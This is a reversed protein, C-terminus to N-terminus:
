ASERTPVPTKPGVNALLERPVVVASEGPTVNALQHLEGPDTVTDGQVLYQGSGDIEYLTPCGDNGSGSGVVRIRRSM